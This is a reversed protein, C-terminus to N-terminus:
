DATHWRPGDPTDTITIGLLVLAERVADADDWRGDRRAQERVELLAEVAERRETARTAMDSIAEGLRTVMRRLTRHAEDVQSEHPLAEHVDELELVTDLASAVAGEDLATQFAAEMEAVVLPRDEPEADGASPVGGRYRLLNVSASDGDRLVQAGEPVGIVVRGKGAAEVIGAELDVLCASHEDVGIVVTGPDLMSRLTEFRAAGMWCFRTDHTGGEANDWHPVVAARIGAHGLLDLGDLWRPDEGVKYIEYVPIAVTGATVAAASAFTVAGREALRRRLIDGVGTVAWIRLAYSPSGPGSFVVDAHELLALARERIAAPVDARRLTAVEVDAGPLSTRFYDLARWTLEDANEQFGYPTDLVAVRPRGDFREFVRRHVPVMTPSTEGSGMITLLRTM